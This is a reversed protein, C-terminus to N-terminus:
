QNIERKLHFQYKLLINILKIGHYVILILMGIEM